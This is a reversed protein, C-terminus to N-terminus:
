LCRVDARPGRRVVDLQDEQRGASRPQVPDLGLEGGQAVEGEVAGVVAAMAFLVAGDAGVTRQRFARASGFVLKAGSEGM